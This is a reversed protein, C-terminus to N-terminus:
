AEQLWGRQMAYRVISARNTLNLKDMLRTKYTEVTKVSLHLNGAIEKNTHGLAILRLVEMERDSLASERGKRHGDSDGLMNGVVRGALAPDIYTGGGAVERIARTLDGAAARKLVYGAAGMRMLQRLYTEEEHVTLAIVKTNPNTTKIRETARAGNLKPMSVDMVVVDPKLDRVMRCAEEGDDAEGVVEMDAQAEILMKLGARVVSHDDALFVRLREM